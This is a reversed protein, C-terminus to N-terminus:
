IKHKEKMAFIILLIILTVELVTVFFFEKGLVMILIKDVLELAYALPLYLDTWKKSRLYRRSFFIVLISYLIVGVM